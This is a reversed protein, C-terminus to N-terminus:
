RTMPFNERVFDGMAKQLRDFYPNFQHNYPNTRRVLNPHSVGDPAIRVVRGGNKLRDVPDGAPVGFTGVTVPARIAAAFAMAADASLKVDSYSMAVFTPIHFRTGVGDLKELTTLPGPVDQSGHEIVDRMLRYLQCVGNGAHDKYKVPNRPIGIDFTMARVVPLCAISAVGLDPLQRLDLAPAFLMMGRVDAGNLALDLALATGLSFGVVIVRQGLMGAIEWGKAVDGRWDEVRVGVIDDPDTGHGPLLVTVVNFGLEHLVGGLDAMYYASDYLGHIMLAAYATRGPHLLAVPASPLRYGNNARTILEIKTKQYHRLERRGADFCGDDDVCRPSKTLAPFRPLADVCGGLALILTAYLVLRWGAKAIVARRSVQRRERVIAIRLRRAACLM